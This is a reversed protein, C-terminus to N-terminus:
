NSWVTTLLPQNLLLPISLLVVDIFFSLRMLRHTAYLYYRMQAHIAYCLVWLVLEWRLRLVNPLSTLEVIVFAILIYRM